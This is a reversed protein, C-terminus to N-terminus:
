KHMYQYIYIIVFFVSIAETGFRKNGQTPKYRHLKAPKPFQGWVCGHHIIQTKPYTHKTQNQM